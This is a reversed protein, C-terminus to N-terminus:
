SRVAPRRHPGAAGLSITKLVSLLPNTTFPLAAENMKSLSSPVM